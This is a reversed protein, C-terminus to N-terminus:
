QGKSFCIEYSKHFMLVVFKSLVDSAVVIVCKHIDKILVNVIHSGFM